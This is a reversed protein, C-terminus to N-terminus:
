ISNIVTIWFNNSEFLITTETWYIRRNSWIFYNRRWFLPHPTFVHCRNELINMLMQTSWDASSMYVLKCYVVICLAIWCDSMNWNFKKFFSNVSASQLTPIWKIRRYTDYEYDNTNTNRNFDTAILRYLIATYSHSLPHTRAPASTSSEYWEASVNFNMQSVCLTASLYASIKTSHPKGISKCCNWLSRHSYM